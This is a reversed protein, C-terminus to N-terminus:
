EIDIIFLIENENNQNKIIIWDEYFNFIMIDQIKYKEKLFDLQNNFFEMEKEYSDIDPNWNKESLEMFEMKLIKSNLFKEEYNPNLFDMIKENMLLEGKNSSENYIM